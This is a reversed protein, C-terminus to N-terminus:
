RELKDISWIEIHKVCSLPRRRVVKHRRTVGGEDTTGVRDTKRVEFLLSGLGIWRLQDWESNGIETTIKEEQWEDGQASMEETLAYSNPPDLIRIAYLKPLFPILLKLMNFNAVEVGLGLQELNPCSRVLQALDETNLRWQPRLLLHKLTAGHIKFINDLYDRALGSATSDSPTSPTGPSTHFNTSPSSAETSFVSSPRRSESGDHRTTFPVEKLKRGTILYYYQLPPFRAMVDCHTRSIKDGCLMKLSTSNSLLSCGLTVFSSVKEHATQATCIAM